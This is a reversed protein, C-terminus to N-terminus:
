EYFAGEIVVNNSLVQRESTEGFIGKVVSGNSTTVIQGTFSKPDKLNLSDSPIITKNIEELSVDLYSDCASLVLILSSCFLFFLKKVYSKSVFQRGIKEPVLFTGINHQSIKKLVCLFEM